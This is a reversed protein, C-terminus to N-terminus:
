SRLMQEVVKIHEQMSAEFNFSKIRQFGRTICIQRLSEDSLAQKLAQAIDQTNYPNCYVGVDGLIEPMCSVDSALIVCGAQMAELMPLGFGEALSGWWLLKAHAYLAKLMADSVYHLNIIFSEEYAKQEKPTLNNHAGTLVIKYRKQMPTPLLKFAEILRHVNRRRAKAGVVLIFDQPFDSPLSEMHTDLYERLGHYIVHVKSELWGFTKLIDKKVVQCFCISEDYHRMKPLIYLNWYREDDESLMWGKKDCPPLDHICGLIKKAQIPMAIFNPEIYLDFLPLHQYKRKELYPFIYKYKLYSYLPPTLVYRAYKLWKSPSKAHPNLHSPNQLIGLASLSDYLIGNVVLKLEVDHRYKFHKELTQILTLTYFGIGTLDSLLVSANIVITKM